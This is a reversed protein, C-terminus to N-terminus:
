VKDINFMGVLHMGLSLDDLLPQYMKQNELNDKIHHTTYLASIKKCLEILSEFLINPSLNYQAKLLKFQLENSNFKSSNNPKMGASKMKALTYSLYLGYSSKVNDISKLSIDKISNPTYKLLYGAIVNWTLKLDDNFKSKILDIVEDAMIVNGTSSSMKKGDITVLGLGIHNIHPYLKKLLSFHNDQEFGTIYLTPGNLKEALAIDQYFYTTNGNSKIGVIKQNDIDFVKTGEFEGEGDKLLSTNKLVQSSAYFIGNLTYKFQSCYDIYKKEADEKNINGDLTDGLIAIFSKGIGISQFAKAFVLNSLHGLHLYKNLNPSFGDVWDYIKPSNFLLNIDKDEILINTYKGSQITKLKWFSIWEKIEASPEGYVCFNFDMNIPTTKISNPNITM